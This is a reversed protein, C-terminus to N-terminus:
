ALIFCNATIFLMKQVVCVQKQNTYALEYWETTLNIKILQTSKNNLDIM